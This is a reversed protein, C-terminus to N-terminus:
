TSTPGWFVPHFWSQWGHVCQAFHKTFHCEIFWLWIRHWLWTCCRVEYDAIPKNCFKCCFCDPHWIQGHLKLPPWLSWAMPWVWWLYRFFEQIQFLSRWLYPLCEVGIQKEFLYVVILIECWSGIIISFWFYTILRSSITTPCIILLLHNNMLVTITQVSMLINFNPLRELSNHLVSCFEKNEEDKLLIM